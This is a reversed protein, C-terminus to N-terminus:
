AASRMGSRSFIPNTESRGADIRIKNEDIFVSTSLLSDAVGRHESVAGLIDGPFGEEQLNAQDTFTTATFV